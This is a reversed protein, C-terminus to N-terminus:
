PSLSALCAAAGEYYAKSTKYYQTALVYYGWRLYIDGWMQANQGKWELLNCTAENPLASAPPAAVLGGVGIAGVALATAGLMKIRHM